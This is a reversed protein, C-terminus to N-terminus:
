EGSEEEKKPKRRWFNGVFTDLMSSRAPMETRPGEFWNGGTWDHLWKAREKFATQFREVIEETEGSELTARISSLTAIYTDIWRMLNDRNAISV